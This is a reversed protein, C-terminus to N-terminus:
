CSASSGQLFGRTVEKSTKFETVKTPPKNPYAQMLTELARSNLAIKRLDRIDWHSLGTKQIAAFALTTIKAVDKGSKSHKNKLPTLVNSQLSNFKELNRNEQIRFYEDKKGIFELYSEILRLVELREEVKKASYRGQLAVAIDKPKLKQDIGEKLKLLENIGAYDLRFIKQM